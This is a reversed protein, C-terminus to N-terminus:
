LDANHEIMRLAWVDASKFIETRPYRDDVEKRGRWTLHVGAVRGDELEFLVDDQDLRRAAAVVALGFLSHGERLEVLLETEMAARERDTTIPHWPEIINLKVRKRGENAFGNLKKSRDPPSLAM